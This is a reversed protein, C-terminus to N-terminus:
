VVVDLGWADVPINVVGLSTIADVIILAKGHAKVSYNISGLDNIVGTSTENHTIIVAQIQRDIDAQLKQSFIETDLPRGGHHCYYNR